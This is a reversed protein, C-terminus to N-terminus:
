IVDLLELMHGWKLLVGDRKKLFIQISIIIGLNFTKLLAPSNLDCVEM